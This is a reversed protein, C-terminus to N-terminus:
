NRSDGANQSLQQLQMKEIVQMEETTFARLDVKTININTQMIEVRQTESWTGRQRMAMWKIAAQTDAPKYRRVKVIIVGDKTNVPHEEVYYYGRALKYLSKAVKADAADKGDNLAKLFTKKTKKWLNITEVSVDFAEALEKDTTGKLAFRNAIRNFSQNYKNHYNAKIPPRGRKM